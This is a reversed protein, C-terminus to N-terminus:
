VAVSSTVKTEWDRDPLIDAAMVTGSPALQLAFASYVTSTVITGRPIASINGVIRVLTVDETATYIVPSGQTTTVQLALNVKVIKEIKRKPGKLIVKPRPMKM